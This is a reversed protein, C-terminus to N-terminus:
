LLFTATGLAAQLPLQPDTPPQLGAAILVLVLVQHGLESPAPETTWALPESQVEM